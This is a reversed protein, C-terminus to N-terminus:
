RATPRVKPGVDIYIHEERAYAINFKLLADVVNSFKPDKIGQRYVVCLVFPFTYAVISLGPGHSARTLRGKYELDYIERLKNKNTISKRDGLFTIFGLGTEM